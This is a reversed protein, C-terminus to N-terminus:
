SSGGVFLAYEDPRLKAKVPNDAIYRRFHHLHSESRVIHDFNEAQWFAGSRQVLANIQRSTFTKWSRLIESLDFDPAPTVLLHLHNPMVVFSDLVYRQGDFFRLAGVVIEAAEKRRLWCAGEGADLWAHFKATFYRHYSERENEPLKEVEERRSIGRAALWQTREIELAELKGQPLSDALRTTVFYTAGPQRWHPLNLRYIELKGQPQFPQFPM